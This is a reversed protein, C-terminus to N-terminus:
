CNKRTQRARAACPREGRATVPGLIPSASQSAAHSQISRTCGSPSAPPAGSANRLSVLFTPPCLSDNPHSRRSYVTKSNVEDGKIEREEKEVVGREGRMEVGSIRENVGEKRGDDLANRM